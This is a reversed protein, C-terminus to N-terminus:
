LFFFLQRTIQFAKTCLQPVLFAMEIDNVIQPTKLDPPLVKLELFEPDDTVKYKRKQSETSGPESTEDM